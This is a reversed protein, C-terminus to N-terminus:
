RGSLNVNTRTLRLVEGNSYREELRMVFRFAPWVWIRRTPEANKPSELVTCEKDDVRETAVERYSAIEGQIDLLWLGSLSRAKKRTLELILNGGDGKVTVRDKEVSVISSEAASYKGFAWM